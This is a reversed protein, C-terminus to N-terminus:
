PRVRRWFARLRGSARSRRDGGVGERRARLEFLGGRRRDGRARRDGDGAPLGGPDHDQSGPSAPHQPSHRTSDM